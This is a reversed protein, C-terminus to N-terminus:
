YSAKPLRVTFVTSGDDSQVSVDGAHAKAIEAVIYLGLGLSEPSDGDDRARGQRLPKFIDWRLEESIPEGENAVEITVVSADGRVPVRVPRRKDGYKLANKILNGVLQHLREADWM